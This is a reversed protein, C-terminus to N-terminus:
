KFVVPTINQIAVRARFRIFHRMWFTFLTMCHYYFPFLAFLHSEETTVHFLERRYPYEYRMHRGLGYSDDFLCYSFIERTIAVDYFLTINNPYALVFYTM